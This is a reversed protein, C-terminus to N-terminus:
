FASIESYEFKARIYEINRLSDTRYTTRKTNWLIGDILEINENVVFAYTPAHYILTALLVSNERDFYFWWTDDDEAGYEAKIVDVSEKGALTDIGLYTLKLGPDLLKFPQNVVFHSALFAKTGDVAGENTNKVGKGNAFSISYDNNKTDYPKISGELTAGTRLTHVEDSYKELSNDSRYLWTKKRFKMEQLSQWHELGGHAIIAADVIKEAQSRPQTISCALLSVFTLLILFLRMLRFIVFFIPKDEKM